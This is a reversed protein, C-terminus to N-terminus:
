TNKTNNLKMKHTIANLKNVKDEFDGKLLTRIEEMNQLLDDIEEPLADNLMEKLRKTLTPSKGNSSIGIKLDGKKVVSSLYFDCLGPTDAVNVLVNHKKAMRHVEKNLDKINTAAIALNMGVLDSEQFEREIIEFQAINQLALAKIEENIQPAVVRIKLTNQCHKFMVGIKEWGVAGAGVVLLHLKDMRLFIPFLQNGEQEKSKM